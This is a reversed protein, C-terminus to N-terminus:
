EYLAKRSDQLASAIETFKDPQKGIRKGDPGVPWAQSLASAETKPDKRGLVKWYDNASFFM